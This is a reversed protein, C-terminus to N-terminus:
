DLSFGESGPVSALLGRTYDHRPERYVDDVSGQEVVVGQYLVVVYECLAQVVALNHSIFLMSAETTSKLSRLLTLIEAQVSVDLASTIEDAIILRPQLILARAIAIRQRQGGSFQHPYKGMADAGLRVQELVETIRDQHQSTKAKGPDLAEALTQGITRRPSLSSFPDQPIYQVQRRLEARRRKGASAVDEGDVLVQGQRPRNIGVVTKGLTSKGSGSEGVLGVATHSPVVLNVDRLVPNHGFSVHLERTELAPRTGVRAPVQNTNDVTTM